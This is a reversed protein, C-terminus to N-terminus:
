RVVLRPLRDFRSCIGCKEARKLISRGHAESYVRNWFSQGIQNACEIQVRAHRACHSQCRCRTVYYIRRAGIFSTKSETFGLLIGSSTMRTSVPGDTQGQSDPRESSPAGSLSFFQRHRISRWRWHM